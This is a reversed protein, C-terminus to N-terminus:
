LEVVTILVRPNKKDVGGKAITLNIHDFSDDVIIGAKTLGDLLFKGSYNDPDRRRNDPFFYEITVNAKDFPKPLKKSRALLRVSETWLNKETRYDWPNDKGAIQNLSPPTGPVEIRLSRM